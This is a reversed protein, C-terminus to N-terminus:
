PRMVILGKSNARIAPIYPCLYATELQIVDYEQDQLLQVLKEKFAASIFREVNYSKNLILHKFAEIYSINNDIYVTEIQTYHDFDEPLQQLDVYHKNTNM